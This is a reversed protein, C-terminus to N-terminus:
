INKESHRIDRKILVASRKNKTPYLKNNLIGYVSSKSLSYNECITKVSLDDYIFEYRIKDCIDQTLDYLNPYITKEQNVKPKVIRKTGILIKVLYHRTYGYKEILTEYTLGGYIYDRKINEITEEPIVVEKKKEEIRKKKCVWFLNNIHTNTIDGDKFGIYKGDVPKDLFKEGIISGVRQNHVTHTNVRHKLLLSWVRGHTTLIYKKHNFKIEGENLIIPLESMSLLYKNFQYTNLDKLECFDHISDYANVFEVALTKIEDETIGMKGWPTKPIVRRPPKPKKPYKWNDHEEKTMTNVRYTYRLEPDVNFWTGYILVKYLSGHSVGYEKALQKVTLNTNEYKYRIERVSEENLKQRHGRKRLNTDIAHQINDQLSLWELNDVHNNLKDGDIHNVTVLNDPNPIFLKAVVRHLKVCTVRSNADRISRVYYGHNGIGFVVIEGDPNNIFSKVRGHNSVSYKGEFGPIKEWIENM